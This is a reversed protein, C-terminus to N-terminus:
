HTSLVAFLLVVECDMEADKFLIKDRLNIYKLFCINIQKKIYYASLSENKNLPSTYHKTTVVVIKM